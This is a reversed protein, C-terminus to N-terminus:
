SMKMNKAFPKELTMQLLQSVAQNFITIEGRNDIAIVGTGINALIAELQLRRKELDAGAQILSQRNERLNRTMKNFSDVLVAIEDHGTAFLCM